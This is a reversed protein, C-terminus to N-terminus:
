PASSETQDKRMAGEAVLLAMVEEAEGPLDDFDARRVGRYAAAAFGVALLAFTLPLLFHVPWTPVDTLGATQRIELRHLADHWTGWAFACMVAACIANCGVAVWRKVSGPLAQFLLDATIHQGRLQASVFGLMAIVPLYWYQVYELTYEIPSGAFSRLIGNAVVHVTMTILAVGAVAEVVGVLLRRAHGCLVGFRSLGEMADSM